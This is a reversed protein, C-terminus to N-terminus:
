ILVNLAVVINTHSNWWDLFTKKKPKKFNTNVKVLMIRCKVNKLRYGGHCEVHSYLIKNPATGLLIITRIMYLM